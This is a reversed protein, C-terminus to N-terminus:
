WVFEWPRANISALTREAESTWMAVKNSTEPTLLNFIQSKNAYEYLKKM